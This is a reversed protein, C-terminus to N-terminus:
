EYQYITTVHAVNIQANDYMADKVEDKVLMTVFALTDLSNENKCRCKEYISIETGLIM